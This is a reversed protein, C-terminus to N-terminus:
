TARDPASRDAPGRLLGLLQELSPGVTGADRGEALARVLAGDVVALVLRATGRDHPLGARGLVEALLEDLRDDFATLATRLHPHRAAELYRDYLALPGGPADAAAGVPALVAVDLLARAVEAPETLRTPLGDVAARARVSWAAALDDVAAAMLDDLSAFYYTTASLPLGAREAVARHGVAAFGQEM